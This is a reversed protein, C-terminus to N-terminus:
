IRTGPLLVTQGSRGSDNEVEDPDKSDASRDEVLTVKGDQLHYTRDAARMLAPQHSIALITYDGGLQQLTECIAAETNRDLASTPEDLILLKPKRM